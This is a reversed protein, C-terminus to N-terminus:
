DEFCLNIEGDLVSKLEVNYNFTHWLPKKHKSDEVGWHQREYQKEVEAIKDRKVKPLESKCTYLLMINVEEIKLRGYYAFSTKVASLKFDMGDIFLTKKKYKNWVKEKSINTINEKMSNVVSEAKFEEKIAEEFFNYVDM